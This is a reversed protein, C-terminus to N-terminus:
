QADETADQHEGSVAAAVPRWASVFSGRLGSAVLRGVALPGYAALCIPAGSNAAARDGNPRHFHPRGHLFLIADARAWIQSVFWRTETRAPILGIGNGHDALRSLWQEAEPGFPPNVWAFGHWDQALGDDEVTFHQEATPWPQSVAACPDLDFPGLAAVIEPPTLWVDTAGRVPRQHSSLSM